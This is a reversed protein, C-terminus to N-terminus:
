QVLPDFFAHLEIGHISKGLENLHCTDAPGVYMTPEIAPLMPGMLVDPETGWLIGAANWSKIIAAENTVPCDFPEYDTMGSVYIPAGPARQRIQDLIDLLQELDGRRVKSNKQSRYGLQWWIVAPTGNHEIGSQFLQWKQGAPPGIHSWWTEVTGGGYEAYLLCEEDNQDLFFLGETGCISNATVSFGVAHARDASPQAEATSAGLGVLALLLPTFRNLSTTM